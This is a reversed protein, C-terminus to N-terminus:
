KIQQQHCKKRWSDSRWGAKEKNKKDIIIPNKKDPWKGRQMNNIWKEKEKEREERRAGATCTEGPTKNKKLEIEGNGKNLTPGKTKQAQNKKEERRTTRSLGVWRKIEGQSKSEMNQRKIVERQM